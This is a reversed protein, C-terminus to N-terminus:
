LSENAFGKIVSIIETQIQVTGLNVCRMLITRWEYSNVKLITFLFCVLERCLVNVNYCNNHSKLQTTDMRINSDYTFHKYRTKDTTTKASQRWSIVTM